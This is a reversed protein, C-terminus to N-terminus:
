RDEVRRILAAQQLDDLYASVDREAEEYNVDYGECVAEIIQSLSTSGDILRWITSGVENLTYISDLDGV